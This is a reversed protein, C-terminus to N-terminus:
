GRYGRRELYEALATRIVVALTVGQSDAAKQLLAKASSPLKALIQADHVKTRQGGNTLDSIPNSM